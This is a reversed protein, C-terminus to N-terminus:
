AKRSPRVLPDPQANYVKSHPPVSRTLWVNGGIVSYEGIATEGGLITAGAYIVVFDGVNPHRKIGKVLHGQEDKEFSLAGLTVGQYLKVHNGIECTEGIVVGTGHDIFFANGIKAGPHIDIGTQSHARESMIRPILPVKQLYLFHALRHVIIAYLGPYSLIVEMNSKAAPDGEFAAVIDTQLANQIGPLANLFAMSIVRARAGCDDCRECGECHDVDCQYELALRVQSQLTEACEALRERVHDTVAGLPVSSAGHCGPFLISILDDLLQHVSQQWALKAGKSLKRGEAQIWGVALAESVRALLADKSEEPRM